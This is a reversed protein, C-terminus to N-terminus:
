WAALLGATILLFALFAIGFIGAAYLVGVMVLQGASHHFGAFLDAIQPEQADAQHRCLQLLGAGFVPLLLNVAIQGFLPVISIALLIVMLLVSSGIWVGPNAMFMAWGQRLWEFCAGADVVRSSGDFPAPAM